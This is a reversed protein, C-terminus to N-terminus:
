SGLFLLNCLIFFYMIMSKQRIIIGLNSMVFTMAFSTLLFLVLSMKVSLPANKIVNIFNIKFIKRILLLYILNEISVLIGLIGPADFFLPRFWFTFFKEPLSYGAMNVGSGAYALAASRKSTFAIFDQWLNASANLNVVSLIQEQLLLISVLFIGCVLIKKRWEVQDKVSLFGIIAGIALLLFIHPRIFFVLISCIILLYVREKFKTIAYAFLMIGFFIPAGKGLSSTWFHMNPLFLILTLLDVRKFVIVKLSINEKFFLYALVFGMFGIWAFLLMMMEYSFGLGNIFPYSFFNIFTTETGFFDLWSKNIDQPWSYYKHSDSPNFLAYIYYSVGFFLHYFFLINM